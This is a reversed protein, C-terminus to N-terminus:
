ASRGFTTLQGWQEAVRRELTVTAQPFLRANISALKSAELYTSAYRLGNTLLPDHHDIVLRLPATSSRPKPNTYVLSM